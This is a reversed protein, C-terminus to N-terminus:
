LDMDGMTEGYENTTLHDLKFNLENLSSHAHKVDISKLRDYFGTFVFQNARKTKQHAKPKKKVFNSVKLKKAKDLKNEKKKPM